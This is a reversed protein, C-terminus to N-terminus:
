KAFVIFTNLDDPWSEPTHGICFKPLDKDGVIVTSFRGNLVEVFRELNPQHVEAVVCGVDALKDGLSLLVDLEAKEVDIKLVDVRDINNAVMFSDLRTCDVEEVSGTFETDLSKGALQELMAKDSGDVHFGSLLTYNPLYTGKLKGEQTGVGNRICTVPLGSVNRSLHDFPEQFPEFAFVRAENGLHLAISKSFAGVNAGVDLVTANPPFSLTRLHTMYEDKKDSSNLFAVETENPSTFTSAM